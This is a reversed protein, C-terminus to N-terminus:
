VEETVRRIGGVFEEWGPQSGPPLKRLACECWQYTDGSVSYVWGDYIEYDRGIWGFYWQRAIVETRDTNLDPRMQSRIAVLEGVCFKPRQLARRVTM